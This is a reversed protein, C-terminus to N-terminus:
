KNGMSCNRPLWIAGAQEHTQTPEGLKEAITTKIALCCELRTNEDAIKLASFAEQALQKVHGQKM